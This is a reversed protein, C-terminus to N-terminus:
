LALEKKEQNEESKDRNGVWSKRYFHKGGKFINLCVLYNRLEREEQIWEEHFGRDEQRMKSQYSKLGTKYTEKQFRGRDDTVPDSFYSSVLDVSSPNVHM